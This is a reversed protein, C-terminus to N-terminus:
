IDVQEWYRNKSEILGLITTHVIGVNYLLTTYDECIKRM